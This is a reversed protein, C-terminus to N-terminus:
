RERRSEGVAKWRGGDSLDIWTVTVFCCTFVLTGYLFAHDLGMSSYASPALFFLQLRPAGSRYLAVASAVLALMWAYTGIDFLFNKAPAVFIAEISEIASQEGIRGDAAAQALIGTTIGAIADGANYFVAFMVAGLRAVTATIGRIGDVLFWM